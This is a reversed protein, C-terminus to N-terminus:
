ARECCLHASRCVDLAMIKAVRALVKEPGFQKILLKTLDTEAEIGSKIFSESNKNFVGFQLAKVKRMILGYCVAVTGDAQVTHTGFISDCGTKGMINSKNAMMGDPYSAVAQKGVLFAFRLEVLKGVMQAAEDIQFLGHDHRELASTPRSRQFCQEPACFLWWILM